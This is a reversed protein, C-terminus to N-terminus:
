EDEDTAEGQKQERIWHLAEEIHHKVKVKRWEKMVVGDNDIVFTSRQIGLFERGFLKKPQWVGYLEAVQHKEDTLLLFPLEYKAIFKAHRKVPDTSIGLIVTNLQGFEAHKDRFDCAQKTCGPTMDKPYFYLLVNKGRFDSLSVQNGNSAPLTFDPAARGEMRNM